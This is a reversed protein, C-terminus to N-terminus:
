KIIIGAIKGIKRINQEPFPKRLRIRSQNPLKRGTEIVFVSDHDFRHSEPRYDDTARTITMEVLDYRDFQNAKDLHRYRIPYLRVLEGTDVTVGACCVTEEYKQSPQPFAKVLIRILRKVHKGYSM